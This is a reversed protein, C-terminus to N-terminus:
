KAQHAYNPNLVTMNIAEAVGDKDNSSVVFDAIKKLQASGNSMAVGIQAAQLMEIDNEGDGIAMVETSDINMRKLLIALSSGKSTNQPLIELMGELGGSIVRAKNISIHNLSDRLQSIQFLADSKLAIVKHIHYNNAIDYLSNVFIPRPEGYPILKQSELNDSHAFITSGSYLLTTIGHAEISDIIEKVIQKELKQEYLITGDFNCIQGGQLYIGPTHLDLKKVIAKASFYSKGTALVIYTNKAIAAKLALYTKPTIKQAKNLLTADIDIAILRIRTLESKKHKM